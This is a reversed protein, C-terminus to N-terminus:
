SADAPISRGAEALLRGWRDTVSATIPLLRSGFWEPLDQELWLRIRERGGEDRMAEAGHRIEGVSIVSLHLAEDPVSEFWTTVVRSPRRRALESVVDTDLLYSLSAAM